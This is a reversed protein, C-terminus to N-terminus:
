EKISGIMVGKVFYKQVFPYIMLIPLITVIIVAYKLQQTALSREFGGMAANGMSSQTNSLILIKRLYMQIPHLSSDPLYMLAAFYGNWQGVAYFLTMVAIIPKSLPMYIQWFIRYPSAGDIAAAEELTDPISELFSRCVILNWASILYPLVCAWRTNYLGIKNVLLFMPIMGGSFYMTFLVFLMLKKRLFFRRRSLPYASIMTFVVSLVTGVVTYWLTNMYSRWIEGDQFVLKYAQSSFGKPFFFIDNKAVHEAGSISMSFTYILPYLAIFSCIIVFAYVIILYIKDNRSKKLKKEAKEMTEEKGCQPTM